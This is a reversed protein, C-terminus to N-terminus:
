IQHGSTSRSLWIDKIKVLLSEAQKHSNRLPLGKGNTVYWPCSVQRDRTFAWLRWSFYKLKKASRVMDRHCCKPWLPRIASCSRTSTKWTHANTYHCKLQPIPQTVNKSSGEKSCNQTKEMSNRLNVRGDTLPADGEGMFELEASSDMWDAVRTGGPWNCGIQCWCAWDRLPAVSIMSGLARLTAGDMSGNVQDIWMRKWPDLNRDTFVNLYKTYNSTVSFSM